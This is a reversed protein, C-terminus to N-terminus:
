AAHLDDCGTGEPAVSMPNGDDLAVPVATYLPSRRWGVKGSVHAYLDPRAATNPCCAITALSAGSALWAPTSIRCFPPLATSAATATPNAIATVNGSAPFMPPPPYM